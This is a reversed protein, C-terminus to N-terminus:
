RKIGVRMKASRARRNRNIEEDGPMIARSQEPDFPRIINGYLDTERKGEMNGTALFHKVMRDELSHYSIVVLRGGTQLVEASQELMAELARLEGNVEMRIAQFVQSFYKFKTQAPTCTSLIDCLAGTSRIEHQKRADAIRAALKPANSIEGYNRFIRVLAEEPYENVVMGAHLTAQRDMRMDLEADYRHAFGRNAEDIQHSSIGLDALIGDVPICQTYRLFRYLFQFSHPVFILRKDDPLNAAADADRDFAVLKGNPGLRSLIERSHGGGGFTCDVYTGDPRINLADVSEQLMVPLHYGSNAPADPHLEM